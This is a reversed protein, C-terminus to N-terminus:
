QVAGTTHVLECLLRGGECWVGQMDPDTRDLRREFRRLRPSPRCAIALILATRVSLRTDSRVRLLVKPRSVIKVSTSAPTAPHSMGCWNSPALARPASKPATIPRSRTASRKAPTAMLPVYRPTNMSKRPRTLRERSCIAAQVTTTAPAQLVATRMLTALPLVSGPSTAIGPSNSASIPIEAEVSNAAM